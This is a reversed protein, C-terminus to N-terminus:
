LSFLQSISQEHNIDGVVPRGPELVGATFARGDMTGTGQAASSDLWTVSCSSVTERRWATILGLAILFVPQHVEAASAAAVHVALADRLGCAQVIASRDGDAPGSTKTL